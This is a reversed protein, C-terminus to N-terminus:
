SQNYSARYGPELRVTVTAVEPMPPPPMEAPHNCGASFLGALLAAAVLWHRAKAVVM